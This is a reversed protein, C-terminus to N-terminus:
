TIQEKASQFFDRVAGRTIKKWVRVKREGEREREIRKLNWDGRQRNKPFVIQRKGSNQKYRQLEEREQRGTEQRWPALFSGKKEGEIVRRTFMQVLTSRIARSLFTREVGEYILLQVYFAMEQIYIIIYISYFYCFAYWTVSYSVSLSPFYNAFRRSLMRWNDCVNLRSYITIRRKIIIWAPFQVLENYPSFM